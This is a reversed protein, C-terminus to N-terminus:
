MGRSFDHIRADAFGALGVRELWSAAATSPDALAYLEAYFELNERATLNPYLFSQHGMMGIRRRYRPGLRRTDQGFVLARGDSPAELGALIRLLTSKGAGNGGIIFAGRSPLVRALRYTKALSHTEVISASM